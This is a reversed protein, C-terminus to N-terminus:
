GNWSAREREIYEKAEVGEWIEKGLGGLELVSRRAGVKMGRRVAAALEELLLLQQDPELRRAKELLEEYDM